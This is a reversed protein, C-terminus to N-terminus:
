ASLSVVANYGPANTYLNAYTGIRAEGADANSVRLFEAGDGYRLLQPADGLSKLAWTRMTLMYATLGPCSRDPVCRIKGKPGNIKIAEFAVEGVQFSDYQVKAGLAYELATYSAFSMFCYNPTGGERGLRMAAGTLAEPIDQASGNYRIGALRTPDPSRNVGYFNDSTSPATSPLWGALGTVVANNDGYRLLSDGATWGSPSAAAGGQSTSVTVTGADRDVAVVYGLAARPTGGSTANAQLTMGVEFQTVSNVDNLTIVGSTIGGTAIAGRTGTGDRFLFSSINLVSNRFGGDIVVSAGDIFSGRDGSAALMTENDITVIDYNRKRTVLFEAGQIPTQGGQAVSFTASGGQSTGYILPVPYLKGTFNTEKKVLAFFPNDEYVENPVPQGDYLEKLAFNAASLDLYTSAM